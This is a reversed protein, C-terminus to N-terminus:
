GAFCHRSMSFTTVNSRQLMEVCCSFEKQCLIYINNHLNNERVRTPLIDDTARCDRIPCITERRTDSTDRALDNARSEIDANANTRVRRWSTTPNTSFLLPPLNKRAITQRLALAGRRNHAIDCAAPLSEPFQVTACCCPLIPKRRCLESRQDFVYCLYGMLLWYM